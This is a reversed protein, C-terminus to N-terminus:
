PLRPSVKLLGVRDRSEKELPQEAADHSDEQYDASARLWSASMVCNFSLRPNRGSDAIGGATGNVASRFRSNTVCIAAAM